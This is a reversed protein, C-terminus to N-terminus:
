PGRMLGSSAGLRINTQFHKELNFCLQCGLCIQLLTLLGLVALSLLRPSFLSSATSSLVLPPISPPPVLAAESSLPGCLLPDLRGLTGM